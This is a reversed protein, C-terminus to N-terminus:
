IHWTSGDDYTGDQSMFAGLADYYSVFETWNYLDRPDYAHVARTNNDFHINQGTMGGLSDYTFLDDQWNVQNTPDYFVITQSGDDYHITQGTLQNLGNYDVVSDTWDFQDAVDYGVIRRAGDDYNVIQATLQNLGDYDVRYDSWNYQEAVDTGVVARTGDDYAVTAATLRAQDDYDNRLDTWNSLDAADYALDSHSGDDYNITQDTLRNLDDYHVYYNSWNIQYHVDWYQTTHSGDPYNTTLSEQLVSLTTGAPLTGDLIVNVSDGVDTGNLHALTVWGAGGATGDVDVELTAFTGGADEIVAVLAAVPQGAGGAYAAALLTSLDIQDGEGASYSGTNGQNFDTITDFVPVDALAAAGFVFDDSGAGGALADAGAGGDLTDSGADGSLANAAGDGILTDAFLSGYLNEISSYTDGAADNTNLASNALSALVGVTNGVPVFYSATDSGGGGILTDGGARGRLVNAAGDGTLTDSFLSGQLNEISTYTDGVAEGTNNLTNSLDVILGASSNRYDAYDSGGGGDLADAGSQGRLFNDGGDGILIDNTNSGMLGEISIYTDGAADGTNIASNALSATVGTGTSNTNYWAFDFGAGGDLVDAGAGGDLLNVQNVDGDGRLVDSFAGGRLQMIGVYTDGVADGTNNATNSLDVTIGISSGGYDATDFGGMGTFSDAGAGGDFFNDGANGVLVDAFNSGRLHEIAIYVDGVAEGTNLLSNTLNATLGVSSDRYDAFDFGAGGNLTDGGGGGRLANNLGDGVLTDSFASGRLLEISTYTDGIAEGTNNLSNGLDVTLGATSNFYDAWDFGGGGDLTDAGAGGNLFNSFGNGTLTDAHDSGRLAEISNYVDGAAEGTNSGPNALSATVGVSSDSYSAFDTGGGGNLTDAGLGGRLTNGANDGTLTDGFAGGRVREISTYTDGVAEGTNNLPNSLDVVVATTANFYDAYDAGAGGDLADAGLSGQLFNDGADGTLTDSFDGGRLGEISSYIDGAAEGTNSGPNLLSVM